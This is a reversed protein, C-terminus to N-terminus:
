QEHRGQEASVVSSGAVAKPPIDRICAARQGPGVPRLPPAGELCGQIAYPCRPQFPCGRPLAALDPPLGEISPLQGGQPRDLRPVSRLLGITYPHRPAHFLAAIPAEEVIRGAYMILARDALSAISALDHTIWIVAMGLEDRLSDVLDVIDAQITVDLVTTPEDAILLAPGCAIAMAIMVRQRMGGSFQHPYDDLREGAEPIGVQSLLAAAQARAARGRLNLHAELIETLQRGITLVPNLSALPDQFVMAIRRGRIAEMARADLRLLDEGGFLIRGEVIRGPPEPLLRMLSLATVSKGSGSEGVIAVVEGRELTFSVRSLAKVAGRRLDFRASLNQVELLPLM